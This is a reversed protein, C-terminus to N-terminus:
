KVVIRIIRPTASLSGWAASLRVRYMGPAVPTGGLKGDWSFTQRGATDPRAMIQQWIGGVNIEMVTNDSAGDLKYNFKIPLGSALKLMRPVAYFSSIRPAQSLVISYTKTNGAQATVVITVVNASSNNIKVIRAAGRKGNITVKAYPGAAKAMIAISNRKEPVILTYSTVSPDFAPTLGKVNIFLRKLDANASKDRVVKVTYVNQVGAATVVRLYVIRSHGNAVSVSASARLRGNIYLKSASIAKVPTFTVSATNEPLTLTYRNVLPDFAPALVGAGAGLALLRSADPMDRTITVTYTQTTTLDEATVAILATVTGGFDVAYEKFLVNEGNMTFTAGAAATPTLTVSGVSAPLAVAYALASSSFTPSLPQTSDLATLTCDNSAAALATPIMSFIFVLSVLSSIFVKFLRSKTKM